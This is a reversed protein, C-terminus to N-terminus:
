NGLPLKMKKLSLELIFPEATHVEPEKFQDVIQVDLLKSFYDKRRDFWNSIKIRFSTTLTCHTDFTLIPCSLSSRLLSSFFVHMAYYFCCCCCCMVDWFEARKSPAMPLWEVWVGRFCPFYLLININNQEFAALSSKPMLLFTINFCIKIFCNPHRTNSYEPQPYPNTAPEQSCLVSGQIGCFALFINVLQTVM